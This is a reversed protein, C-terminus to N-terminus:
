VLAGLGAATADALAATSDRRRRLIGASVLAVILGVTFPELFTIGANILPNRYLEQFKQMDATKKVIQAESAGDAREKAITYETYKAIFDPAVRYYIVQWTAVYCASAVVNILVGVLLARGFSITRGLKNDRYSKIGFFILLFAAIITTYGIVEATEWGIRDMFPITALMMVSMIAGAILGFTWVTRKM